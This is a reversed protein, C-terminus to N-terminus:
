LESQVYVMYKKAILSCVLRCHLSAHHIACADAGVWSRVSELAGFIIKLMWWRWNIHTRHCFARQSESERWRAIWARNKVYNHINNRNISYRRAEEENKKRRCVPRIYIIHKLHSIRSIWYTHHSAEKLEPWVIIISMLKPVIVLMDLANQAWQRLFQNVFMIASEKMDDSHRM